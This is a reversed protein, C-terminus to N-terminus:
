VQEAFKVRELLLQHGISLKGDLAAVVHADNICADVLCHVLLVEDVHGTFASEAKLRVM